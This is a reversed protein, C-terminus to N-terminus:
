WAGAEQLRKECLNLAEHLGTKEEDDAQEIQQQFYRRIEQLPTTRPLPEIAAGTEIRLTKEDPILSFFRDQAFSLIDSRRYTALQKVDVSGILRMRLVLEPDRLKELEDKLLNNIKGKKPLNIEVTRLDRAPTEIFEQSTVGQKDLEIWVFGKKEGEELFRTRETSGPYIIDTAGVKSKQYRHLHGAALLQFARPISRPRVVPELSAGYSEFGEIAYHLMLINIDGSPDLKVNELPDAGWSLLPNYSMGSVLVKHDDIKLIDQSPESTDEFYRVFKSNGYVSLPSSGEEMSKPTDHHGSILFVRIGKEHLSRFHKMTLARTPNRPRMHDFLDGSILVLDPRNKLAYDVVAGFCRLFDMKRDYRRPGYMTAPPDLHNDATHLVQITM